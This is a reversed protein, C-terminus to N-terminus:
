STTSGTTPKLRIPIAPRPRLRCAVAPSLAAACLSFCLLFVNKM